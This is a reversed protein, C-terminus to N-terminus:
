DTTCEAASIFSPCNEKFRLRPRLLFSHTKNNNKNKQGTVLPAATSSHDVSMSHIERISRVQWYPNFVKSTLIQVCIAVAKLDFSNPMWTAFMQFCIHSIRPEFERDNLWCGVAKVTPGYFWNKFSRQTMIQSYSSLFSIFIGLCREGPFVEWVGTLEGQSNKLPNKKQSMM